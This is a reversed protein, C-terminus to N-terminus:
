SWTCAASRATPTSQRAPQSSDTAYHATCWPPGQDVAGWVRWRVHKPAALVTLGLATCDRHQWHPASCM